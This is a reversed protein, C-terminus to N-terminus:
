ERQGFFSPRCLSGTSVASGPDCGALTWATDCGRASSLVRSRRTFPPGGPPSSKATTKPARNNWGNPARNNWRQRFDFM